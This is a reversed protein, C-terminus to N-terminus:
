AASRLAEVTLMLIFGLAAESAGRWFLTRLGVSKGASSRSADYAAYVIGLLGMAFITLLFFLVEPLNAIECIIWGAVAGLAVGNGQARFEPTLGFFKRLPM